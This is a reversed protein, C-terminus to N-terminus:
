FSCPIQLYGLRLLPWCFIVFWVLGMVSGHSQYIKGVHITSKKNTFTHLYVTRGMSGDHFIKPHKVRLEGPQQHLSQVDWVRWFANQNNSRQRPLSKTWLVGRFPAPCNIFNDQSLSKANFLCFIIHHCTNSCISKSIHYAYIGAKVFFVMKM